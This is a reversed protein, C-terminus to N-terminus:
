LSKIMSLLKELSDEASILSCAFHSVYRINTNENVIFYNLRSGKPLRLRILDVLDYERESRM